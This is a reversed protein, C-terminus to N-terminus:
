KGVACRPSELQKANSEEMRTRCEIRSGSRAVEQLMERLEARTGKFGVFEILEDDPGGSELREIRRELAKM